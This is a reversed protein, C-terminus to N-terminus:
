GRRREVWVSERGLLVDVAQGIRSFIDRPAPGAVRARLERRVVFMGEHRMAREFEEDLRPVAPIPARKQCLRPGIAPAAKPLM